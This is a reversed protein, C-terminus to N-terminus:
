GCTFRLSGAATAATSSVNRFLRRWISLFDASRQVIVRKITPHTSENTSWGKRGPMRTMRWSRQFMSIGSDQHWGVNASMERGLQGPKYLLQDHWLRISGAQMLRAATPGIVPDTALGRLISDSWHSNDTKRLGPSDGPKWYGHFPKIGPEFKESYVWDMRERLQQIRQDDIIKPAIWYGNEKFFTLDEGDPLIDSQNIL